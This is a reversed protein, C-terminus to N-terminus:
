KTKERADAVRQAEPSLKNQPRSEANSKAIAWVVAGGVLVLVLIVGTPVGASEAGRAGTRAVLRFLLFVGLGIPAASKGLSDLLTGSSQSTPDLKGAKVYSDGAARVNGLHQEAIGLLEHGIPDNPELRLSRLAAEKVQRLNGDMLHVFADMQHTKHLEPRDRMLVDRSLRAKLVFDKPRKAKPILRVCDVMAIHTTAHSPNLALAQEITEISEKHRDLFSLVIGRLTLMDATPADVALSRDIADLAKAPDELGIYAHALQQLLVGDFPIEVLGELILDRAEAFRGLALLQDIKAPSIM